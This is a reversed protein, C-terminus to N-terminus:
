LIMGLLVLDDVPDVIDELFDFIDQVIGMIHVLVKLEVATLNGGAANAFVPEEGHVATVTAFVAGNVRVTGELGTADGEVEVEVTDFRNEMTIQIRGPGEDNGDEIGSIMGSIAFGLSEVGFSFDIDLITKEEVEEAELSLDFDLRHEEGALYGMVTLAGGNADHDLTTRYDLVTREGDVVLLRLVIDEESGDGEDILDAYGREEEVIPVGAEDTEYIIFRVGTEPAGERELDEVYEDEVPDYVFTTGRHWGSIIPGALPGDDIHGRSAAVMRDALEAAFARGGDSADPARLGAVVEISAPSSGFPTRGALAQFGAMEASGFTGDLAELDALAADADFPEVEPGTGSECGAAAIALVLLAAPLRHNRSM